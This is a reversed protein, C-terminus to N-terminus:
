LIMFKEEIVCLNDKLVISIMSPQIIALKEM